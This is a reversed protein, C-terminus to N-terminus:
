SLKGWKEPLKMLYLTVALLVVDRGIAAPQGSVFDIEGLCGCNIDIGQIWTWVLLGIYLVLLLSVARLAYKVGFRVMIGLGLVVEFSPLFYSVIWSLQYGIVRYDLIELQFSGPDLLKVLGALLFFLGLGIRLIWEITRKTKEM